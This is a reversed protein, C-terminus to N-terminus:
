WYFPLRKRWWEIGDLYIQLEKKNLEM